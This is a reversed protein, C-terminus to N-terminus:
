HASNEVQYQVLEDRLKKSKKYLESQQSSMKMAKELFSQAKVFNDSQLACQGAQLYYQGDSSVKAANAYSAAAHGYLRKQLYLEALLLYRELSPATLAKQVAAIAKDLMGAQRYINALKEHEEPKTAGTMAKQYWVAAQKPLEAALYLNAMQRCEGSGPGALRYAVELDAAAQRYRKRRLEVGAAMRWISADGPEMALLRRAASAAPGWQQLELYCRVLAKLWGPEVNASAALQELHPLAKNAQGGELYFVGAQYLLERDQPKTLAYARLAAKAAAEHHELEYHIVALNRWALDYCGYLRIARKLHKLAEKRDGAEYALMGQMFSLRHHKLDPRLESFRSLRKAAQGPQGRELKQYAQYLAKHVKLPMSPERPCDAAGAWNVGLALILIALVLRKM